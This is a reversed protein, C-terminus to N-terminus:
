KCNIKKGNKVFQQAMPQAFIVAIFRWWNSNNKCLLDLKAIIRNAKIKRIRKKVIETKLNKMKLGLKKTLKLTHKLCLLLNPDLFIAAVLPIVEMM